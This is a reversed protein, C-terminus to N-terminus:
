LAVVDGEVVIASGGATPNGDSLSSVDPGATSRRRARSRHRRRETEAGAEQVARREDVWGPVAEAFRDASRGSQPERALGTTTRRRDTGMRRAPSKKGLPGM